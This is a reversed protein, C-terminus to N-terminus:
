GSSLLYMGDGTARLGTVAGYHATAHNHGSSLGPHLRQVVPGRALTQSKRLARLQKMENGLPTRRQSVMTKVSSSQGTVSGQKPM